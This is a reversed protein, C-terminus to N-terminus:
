GISYYRGQSMLYELTELRGSAAALHAASYGNKRVAAPDVGNEVMLEVLDLHGQEAAAMVTTEYDATQASANAGERLLFDATDRHGGLVADFLPTRSLTRRDRKPDQILM